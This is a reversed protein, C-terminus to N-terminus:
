EGHPGLFRNGNLQAEQIKGMAIRTERLIPFESPLLGEEVLLLTVIADLDLAASNHSAEAVQRGLRVIVERPPLPLARLEAANVQTNGNAIRFYRDMVSSNLLAALGVTEEEGLQGQKRYIYNLHNELGVWAHHYENGLFPAAILRRPEEKASFRRLLVYNSAPLLLNKTSEQNAIYQPKKGNGLPWEVHQSKVHQMWLLPVTLAEGMAAVDRLMEEARFAVVPGTSVELGYKHLSGSWGDIVKVLIEDLEGTPLRFFLSGNHQSLLHTMDLLRHVPDRQLAALGASTSIAVETPEDVRAGSRPRRKFSIIVNEQLVEDAKFAERRSEFLHISLPVAEQLFQRRFAAFYAGSCFSRPVIFCAQGNPELLRVVLALMLTYINTHGPVTGTLAQVRPDDSTLKFYPPNAISYSYRQAPLVPQLAQNDFLALQPTAVQNWLFDAQQVQAHIAIGAVAAREVGVALAARAARALDADIEFGEIWVEIPDGRQILREIVACALTASGLAPDLIRAGHEIAGLQRAMYRAVVPPTLFQGHVKRALESRRALITEGLRHSHAVLDFSPDPMTLPSRNNSGINMNM